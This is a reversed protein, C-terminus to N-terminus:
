EHPGTLRQVPEIQAQDGLMIIRRGKGGYPGCLAYQVGDLGMVGFIGMPPDHQDATRGHAVAPVFLSQACLNQGHRVAMGAYLPM